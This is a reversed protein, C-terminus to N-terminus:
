RQPKVAHGQKVTPQIPEFPALGATLQPDEFVFEYTWGCADCKCHYSVYFGKGDRLMVMEGNELLSERPYPDPGGNSAKEIILRAYEDFDQRSKAIAIAADLDVVRKNARARCMPCETYVGSM